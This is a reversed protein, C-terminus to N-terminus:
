KSVEKKNKGQISICNDIVSDKVRNRWFLELPVGKKDTKIELEQGVELLKGQFKFPKNIKIIMEQMHFM